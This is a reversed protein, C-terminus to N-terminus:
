HALNTFIFFFMSFLTGLEGSHLCPTYNAIIRCECHRCNDNSWRLNLPCRMIETFLGVPFIKEFNIEVIIVFCLSRVRRATYSRSFIFHPREIQAIIERIQLPSSFQAPEKWVYKKKLSFKVPAESPVNPENAARTSVSRHSHIIANSIAVMHKSQM